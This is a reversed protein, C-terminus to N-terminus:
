SRRRLKSVLRKIGGPVILFSIVFGAAFGSLDAIWDLSGGFLLGFLLQAAMLFGILTFARIQRQHLAGLGLWLIFTYAGILGYVGPLGGILWVEAGTFIYYGLAGVAAGTLFVLLVAINGFTEAVIKGLALLFVVAFIAHTANAHVFAYSFFRILVEWHWLGRERMQDLFIGNFGWDEIAAIRWGVGAEGGLYGAGAAQLAIEIGGLVVALVIVMAPLPNFPMETEPARGEESNSM